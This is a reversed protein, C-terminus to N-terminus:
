GRGKAATVVGVGRADAKEKRVKGFGAESLMSAIDAATYSQGEGTVAVMHVSFVAPGEPATRSPDLVFEQVAVRGGPVLAAHAKRLIRICDPRGFAHLIQSIWVVDYPGGVPDALFDGALLRIRGAEGKERMIKRAVRLTVPLDFLTVEAGPCRRAWARAYTGPGGGLDLLREGPALPMRASVAEAREVANDEMGRIFNEQFDGGGKPGKRGARVKADLRGWDSWGDGHHLLISAKSKPGDLLFARAIEGNRYKGGRKELLGIACLGDLLVGTRRPEAGIRRAVSAADSAGDALAAFLGLRLAAFIAMSRQYGTAVAMLEDVSKL